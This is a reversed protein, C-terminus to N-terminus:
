CLHSVRSEVPAKIYTGSGSSSCNSSSSSSVHLMHKHQDVTQCSELTSDHYGLIIVTPGSQMLRFCNLGVQMPRIM